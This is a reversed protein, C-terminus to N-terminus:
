VRERKINIWAVRLLLLLLTVALAVTTLGLLTVVRGRRLLSVTALGLLAVVRLGLRLGYVNLLWLLLTASSASCGAARATGTHEGTATKLIETETHIGKSPM